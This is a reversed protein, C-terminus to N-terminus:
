YNTEITAEFSTIKGRLRTVNVRLPVGDNTITDAFPRVMTDRTCSLEAQSTPPDSRPDTARGHSLNADYLRAYLSNGFNIAVYALKFFLIKIVQWFFKVFVQRLLWIHAGNIILYQKVFSGDKSMQIMMMTMIIKQALCKWNEPNPKRLNGEFHSQCM